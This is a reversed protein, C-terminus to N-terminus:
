QCLMYKGIVMKFYKVNEIFREATKVNSKRIQEHMKGEIPKSLKWIESELNKSMDIENEEWTICPEQKTSSKIEENYLNRKKAKSLM